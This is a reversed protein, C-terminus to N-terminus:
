VNCQDECCHANRSMTCQSLALKLDQIISLACIITGDEEQRELDMILDGLIDKV